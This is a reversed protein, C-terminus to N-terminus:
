CETTTRKSLTQTIAPILDIGEKYYEDSKKIIPYDKNSEVKNPM